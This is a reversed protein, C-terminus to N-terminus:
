QHCTDVWAYPEKIFVVDGPLLRPRVYKFVDGSPSVPFEFWYQGSTLFLFEDFKLPYRDPEWNVPHTMPIVRRTQTKEGSLIKHYLKETFM